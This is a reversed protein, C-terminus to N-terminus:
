GRRQDNGAPDSAPWGAAPTGEDDYGHLQPLDRLDLPATAFTWALDHELVDGSLDRLGASLTVQVRTGIPLARDPVFGIM